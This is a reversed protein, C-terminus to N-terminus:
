NGNLVSRWRDPAFLSWLPNYFIGDQSIELHLHPGTSIGTNGVTALLEGARLWAGEEAEITECHSYTTHLGGGHDLTVYNGYIASEGIEAVRGPLPARVSNGLPAAIDLGRHFDMNGTMPHERWGFLSTVQGEVPASMQRSLLIPAFSCSEPVKLADNTAGFMGGAGSLEGSAPQWVSATVMAEEADPLTQARQGEDLQEQSQPSPAAVERTDAGILMQVGEAALDLANSQLSAYWGRLGGSKWDESQMPRVILQVYGDRAPQWLDANADRLVFALLVVLLWLGVQGSLVYLFPDRSEGKKAGFSGRRYALQRNNQTKM